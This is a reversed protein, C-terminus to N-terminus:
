NSQRSNFAGCLRATAVARRGVAPLEVTPRTVGHAGIMHIGRPPCLVARGVLQVIWLVTAVVM